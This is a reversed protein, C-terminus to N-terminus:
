DLVVLAKIGRPQDEINLGKRELEVANKTVDMCARLLTHYCDGKGLVLKLDPEEGKEAASLVAELLKMTREAMDQLRHAKALHGEVVKRNREAAQEIIEDDTLQKRSPTDASDSDIREKRILKEKTKRRVDESLDREWGCKKARIRITKEDCGYERAIQRVSKSGERYDAEIAIYDIKRAM